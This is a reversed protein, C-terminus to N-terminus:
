VRHQSAFIIDPNSSILLPAPYEHSKPLTRWPTCSRGTIKGNWKHSVTCVPIWSGEERVTSRQGRSSSDWLLLLGLVSIVTRLHCWPWSVSSVCSVCGPCLQLATACPGKGTCSGQKLRHPEHLEPLEWTSNAANQDKGEARPWILAVPRLSTSNPVVDTIFFSPSPSQPFIKIGNKNRQLSLTCWLMHTNIGAVTHARNQDLLHRMISVWKHRVGSKWFTRYHHCKGM